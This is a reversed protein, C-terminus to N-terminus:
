AGFVRTSAETVSSLSADSTSRRIMKDSLSEATSSSGAKVLFGGRRGLGRVVSSTLRASVVAASAAPM